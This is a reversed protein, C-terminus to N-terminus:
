WVRKFLPVCSSVAVWVLALSGVMVFVADDPSLSLADAQPLSKVIAWFEPRSMALSVRIAGPIALAGVIIAVADVLLPPNKKRFLAILVYALVSVLALLIGASTFPNM